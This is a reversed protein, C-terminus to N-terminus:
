NKHLIRLANSKIKPMLDRTNDCPCDKYAFASHPMYDFGETLAGEEIMAVILKAIAWRARPALTDNPMGLVAIARAVMNQDKSFGALNKDNVTHTGKSDLPQGVGVDGTKMDVVFNYSVGSGFRQVGIREVAQMDKKFDGTLPGSDETVTIHQVLTDAKLKFPGWEGRRTRLRRSAYVDLCNSGWEKQTLVTVGRKRANQVVKQTITPM